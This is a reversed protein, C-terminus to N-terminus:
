SVKIDQENYITFLRTSMLHDYLDEGDHQSKWKFWNDYKSCTTWGIKFVHRKPIHEQLQMLGINLLSLYGFQAQRGEMTCFDDIHTILTDIIM